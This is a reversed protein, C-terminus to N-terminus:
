FVKPNKSFLHKRHESRRDRSAGLLASRPYVRYGDADSIRFDIEKGFIETATEQIAREVLLNTLSGSRQPFIFADYRYLCPLKHRKWLIDITRLVLRSETLIALKQKEPAYFSEHLSPFLKQTEDQFKGDKIARRMEQADEDPFNKKNITAYCGKKAQKETKANLFILFSKKVTDRSVNYGETKLGDKIREYIDLGHHWTKNMQLIIQPISSVLDLEQTQVGNIRLRDKFKKLFGNSRTYLRGGGLSKGEHFHIRIPSPQFYKEWEEQPIGSCSFETSDMINKITEAYNYFERFIKRKRSAVPNRNLYVQVSWQKKVKQINLNSIREHFSDTFFISGQAMEFKNFFFGKKREVYGLSELRLVVKRMIEASFFLEKGEITVSYRKGHSFSIKLESSNYSEQCLFLFCWKQERTKFGLETGIKFIERNSNLMFVGCVSFGRKM